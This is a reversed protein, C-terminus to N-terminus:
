DSPSCGTKGMKWCDILQRVHAPRDTMIGDVGRDLIAKLDEYTPHNEEVDLGPTLPFNSLFVHVAGKAARVKRILRESTAWDRHITQLSRKEMKPLPIAPLLFDLVYIGISSVVSMNTPYPPTKHNRM